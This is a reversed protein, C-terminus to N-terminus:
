NTSEAEVKAALDPMRWLAQKRLWKDSEIEVSANSDISRSKINRLIDLQVHGSKAKLIKRANKIMQPCIGSIFIPRPDKDIRLNVEQLEDLNSKGGEDFKPSTVSPEVIPDQMNDLTDELNSGGLDLFEEVQPFTIM